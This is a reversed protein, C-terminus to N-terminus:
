YHLMCKFQTIEPCRSLEGPLTLVGCVSDVLGGTAPNFDVTCGWAM